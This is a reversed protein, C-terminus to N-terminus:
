FHGPLAVLQPLVQKGGLQVGGAIHPQDPVGEPQFLQIAAGLVQAGVLEGDVVPLLIDGGPKALPGGILNEGVAEAAAFNWVRLAHHPAPPDVLAPLLEGLVAGVVPPLHAVPVEEATVKLAHQFLQVVELAQSHLGQVEVGDELRRFVVAVAGGVVAPYVRHQAGVLIKGPQAVLGVPPPHPHHQVAHKVVGAIHAAVEVAVAEVGLRPCLLALVGGVAGPKAKGLPGVFVVAPPADVGQGGDVLVVGAVPVEDEAALVAHDAPPQPRPCVAPPQVHGVLQGVVKHGTDVGGGPRLLGVRHDDALHPLVPGGFHGVPHAPLVDQPAVAVPQHVIGQAGGDEGEELPASPLGKDLPHLGDPLVIGGEGEVGGHVRQVGM